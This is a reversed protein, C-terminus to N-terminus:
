VQTTSFDYINMSFESLLIRAKSLRKISNHLLIRHDKIGGDEQLLLEMKEKDQLMQLMERQLQVASEQLMQYQIVLPIQDALRQGAIQYYSQLHRMMEKLNAGTDNILGEERKRKGLKKSYRCDQTYVILEMRFQTHLMSEALAEKDNTINEIKIKATRILNPLGVLSMQALVFLEKKVLEHPQRSMIDKTRSQVLWIHFYVTRKM